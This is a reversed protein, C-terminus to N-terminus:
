YSRADSRRLAEPLYDGVRCGLLDPQDHRVRYLCSNIVAIVRGSPGGVVHVRDGKRLAFM